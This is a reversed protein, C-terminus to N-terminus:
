QLGALRAVNDIGREQTVKSRKCVGEGQVFCIGAQRPASSLPSSIIFAMRACCDDGADRVEDCSARDRRQPSRARKATKVPQGGARTTHTLAPRAIPVDQQSAAHGSLEAVDYRLCHVQLGVYTTRPGAVGSNPWQSISVMGCESTYNITCLQHLALLWRFTTEKRVILFPM